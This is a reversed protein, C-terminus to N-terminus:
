RLWSWSTTTPIPKSLKGRPTVNLPSVRYWQSAVLVHALSSIQIASTSLLQCPLFTNHFLLSIKTANRGSPGFCFLLLAPLMYMCKNWFINNCGASACSHSKSLHYRMERYISGARHLSNWFVRWDNKLTWDVGTWEVLKHQHELLWRIERFPLQQIFSWFALLFFFLQRKGQIYQNLRTNRKNRQTNGRCDLRKQIRKQAIILLFLDQSDAM